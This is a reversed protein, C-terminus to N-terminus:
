SHDAMNNGDNDEFKKDDVENNDSSNTKKM